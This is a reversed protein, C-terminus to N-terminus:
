ITIGIETALQRSCMEGIYVFVSAFYLIGTASQTSRLRVCDSVMYAFVAVAILGVCVRLSLILWAGTLKSWVDVAPSSLLGTKISALTLVLFAIRAIISWTFIRSVTRLPAITMKTATLYAHGLLWSVTVSGLLFAAIIQSAIDASLIAASRHTSATAPSTLIGFLVGAVAGILAVARLLAPRNPASQALVIVLAAALACVVLAALTLRAHTQVTPVPNRLNWAIVGSALACAIIGILRNFRPATERIRSIGLVLLMGGVISGFFPEIM